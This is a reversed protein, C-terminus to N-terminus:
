LCPSRRSCSLGHQNLSECVISRSSKIMKECSRVAAPVSPKSCKREVDVIDRCIWPGSCYGSGAVTRPDVVQTYGTRLGQSYMGEPSTDHMKLFKLFNEVAAAIHM